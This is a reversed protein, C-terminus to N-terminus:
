NCHLVCYTRNLTGRRPRAVPNIVRSMTLNRAKDTRGEAGAPGMSHLLGQSKSGRNKTNSRLVFICGPGDGTLKIKIKYKKRKCRGGLSCM